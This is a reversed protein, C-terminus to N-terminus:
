LARAVIGHQSRKPVCLLLTPLSHPACPALASNRAHLCLSAPLPRVLHGTLRPRMFSGCEDRVM